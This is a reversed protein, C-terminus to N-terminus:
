NSNARWGASRRAPAPRVPTKSTAYVTAVSRAAHTLRLDPRVSDLLRLRLGLRGAKLSPLTAAGVPEVGVIRIRPNFAKAPVAIGSILGGGGIAVLLTETRPADDLIELAVTGQGAVVVPDAFPHFYALGERDAVSLAARNSDNWATGDIVM